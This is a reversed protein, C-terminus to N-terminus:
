CPWFQRSVHSLLHKRSINHAINHATPQLRSRLQERFVRLPKEWCNWRKWTWSCDSGDPPKHIFMGPSVRCSTLTLGTLAAAGSGDHHFRQHLRPAERLNSGDCGQNLAAYIDGIHSTFVGEDAARTRMHTHTDENVTYVPETFMMLPGWVVLHPILVSKIEASLFFSNQKVCVCVCVRKWNLLLLPIMFLTIKAAGLPSPEHASSGTPFCHALHIASKQSTHIFKM